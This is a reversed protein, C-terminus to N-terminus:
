FGEAATSTSCAITPEDQGLYQRRRVKDFTTGAIECAKDVSLQDWIKVRGDDGATAFRQGDPHVALRWSAGRHGQWVETLRRETALDWWHLEGSRDVAILTAGDALYALDTAGGKHGGFARRRQGTELDWLHIVEDSSATALTQGDPSFALSWIVNDDAEIDRIPEADDVNWIRVLGGTSAAALRKGDSSLAARTLEQGDFSFSRRETKDQVDWLVLRNASAIVLHRADNLFALSWIASDDAEIRGAPRGTRSDWLRVDGARDGSAVLDGSPAFALSWVQHEHGSLEHEPRDDDLRFIRVVGADDGAAIRQGDPSFAVGKARKGAVELTKALPLGADFRWLRVQQDRGLTALLQGDGSIELGVIGQNHGRPTSPLPEGDAINWLRLSGDASGGLLVDGGKNFAVAGIRDTELFVPGLPKGSPYALLASTGSTSVTAIHDNTPSVILDALNSGHLGRVPEFLPTRSKLSWGYVAGDNYGAVIGQGNPAFTVNKFGLPLDVLPKGAQTRLDVNWLRVTGDGNASAILAGNPDFAIGSVVDQIDGIKHNAGTLRAGVTWLWVSGDAGASALNEGEPGFALDRVGGEHGSLGPPLWRKNEIDFVNILGERQGVALLSGKRNLAIALADGVDIPSGFLFPGDAALTRRAAILAARAEFTSRPTEARALAEAALSTALLPDLEALGSAAAGLAGAFREHAEDTAREARQRNQEAQHSARWAVVSAISAGITLATLGAIAVNRLLRRRRSREAAAADASTKSETSAALFEQEHEDLQDANRDAWEAAALLRTGRYLLDPDRGEAEWDSAARVIRQRMRLEDRGEEIWARLRPWTRLLAEHAIQVTDEDVILLRSDTLSEVVRHMVDAAPDRDIESLPLLRRTDPTGEGPTILRLFLRGTAAKEQEDFRHEFLADATQSIAGAVGGAERFGKLTMMNGERRVWTELLAHAVLPLSGAEGGAEDLVADILADELFLSAVRAPETIARRLEPGTMPGVLMQNESIRDALWPIDACAAYFDARLCLVIKIKSDAPDAM